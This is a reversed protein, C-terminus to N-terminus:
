RRCATPSTWQICRRSSGPWGGSSPCPQSSPPYRKPTNALNGLVIALNRQASAAERDLGPLRVFTATAEQAPVLAETFRGMGILAGTLNTLEAALDDDYADPNDAACRQYIDVAERMVAVSKALLGAHWLDIGINGLADALGPEHTDPAQEALHRRLAVAERGAVVAEEYLGANSLRAALSEYLRAKVAKDDTRALAFDTLKRSLAAIGSDLEVHRDPLQATVAELLSLDAYGALTILAAGEARL